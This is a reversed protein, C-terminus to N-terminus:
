GRVGSDCCRNRGCLEVDEVREKGSDGNATQVRVLVVAHGTSWRWTELGAEEDVGGRCADLIWTHHHGGRGLARSSRGRSSCLKGPGARVTNSVAVVSSTEGM